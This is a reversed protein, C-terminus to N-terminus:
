EISTLMRLRKAPNDFHVNRSDFHEPDFDGGAWRLLEEHERHNPDMIAELFDEYGHRGGCDEPPCARQGDICLPYKIGEQRSLINELEVSHEWNDGYDYIYDSKTKRKLFYDAIKKKWGTLMKMPMLGEEDPIGIYEKAGTGPNRIEFHHLHCDLWGMADQIAVHLDWFTYNDPVAIMRWVPPAIGKLTVKFIFVNDFKKKM